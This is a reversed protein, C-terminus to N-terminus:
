MIRKPIFNLYDCSVLTYQIGRINGQPIGRCAAGHVHGFVVEKVHYKDFLATFANAEARENHPPYHMMVVSIEYGRAQASQLSLELRITERNLIKQDHATFDQAHPLIWGRTGCVAKGEFVFCDNQLIFMNEKLISRVRTSSSWWYDHNGRLLLKQGPLEAIADLDLKAQELSMGWSIDGPILVLDEDGISCRWAECVKQWHNEWKEDFITMPKPIAGSLHLDGIAYIAM